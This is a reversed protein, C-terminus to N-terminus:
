RRGGKPWERRRPAKPQALRAEVDQSPWEFSANAPNAVRVILEAARGPAADSPVKGSNFIDGVIRRGDVVVAAKWGGKKTKEEVLVAEIREGSAFPARRAPPTQAPGSRTAGAGRRANRDADEKGPARAGGSPLAEGAFLEAAMAVFAPGHLDETIDKEGLHVAQRSKVTAGGLGHDKMEWTLDLGERALLEIISRSVANKLKRDYAMLRRTENVAATLDFPANEKRQLMNFHALRNRIGTAGTRNDLFDKGFLRRLEEKVATKDESDIQDNKVYLAEVIQGNKLSELKEATFVGSPEAGRLRALALTTFYLDREWLGAYDALRALVAMALRHLRAHNALRVHAALHRHRVVTDLAERYAAKDDRPLKKKEVWLTHLKERQEHAGAVRSLGAGELPAELKGIEDVMPADIPQTRFAPMLRPENGGFRLMERLGRLPVHSDADADQPCVRRFVEPSAFLGKLAEAGALGEGGEFKADHMDLYLEFIREVSAVNPNPAPELISWKRLQHQLGSIADTPVLHILFYLRALWDEPAGGGDAPPRDIKDLDAKKEEPLPGDAPNELTWVFGDEELYAQFAQAVVDCRLDEIHKAQERAKDPASAYGRQVRYEIATERALRDMLEAIGKDKALRVLGASRAIAEPDKNISRAAETARDAARGIWGNLARDDRAELWRPFAREYLTKLVIYRALRGPNAEMDRRNEPGPLRLAFPKRRWAKEARDLMRRFRPLSAERAPAGGAVAGLLAEVRARKWYYEVRAARLSDVLRERRDAIDKELLERVVEPAGDGQSELGERLARAFAGRGRFHFSGNRLAAWGELALRLVVRGDAKERFLRARDGFLIPLRADYAEENFTKKGCAKCIEGSGLIDRDNDRDPDAWDTLTRQALAIVGRWVRVFAENRKIESQGASTRYRSREIDANRPWRDVAYVPEDGDGPRENPIPAAEYHILKGLRVLADLKRNREMAGALRFLADMDAPLLASVKRRRPDHQPRDKGHNKLIRTYADRVAMHLAFLGPERKKAEAVSFLEGNKGCFLKAYHGHLAKAAVAPGVRRNETEEGEAACKIVGAVDGAKRYRELDADAWGTQPLERVPAAVNGAISEARAAIRGQRKNPRGRDIRYEAEHLHEEIKRAIKKAEPEKVAGPETAGAFRAYWRGKERGSARDDNGDGYPRLKRRWLKELEDARDAPLKGKLVAWAAGGLAERLQRQEPTPKKSGAPKRAIKDIASIWQAVLLEPRKGAFDPIECPGADEPRLLLRRRLAGAEAERDADSRGYPKVILM